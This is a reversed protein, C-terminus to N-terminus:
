YCSEVGVGVDSDLLGGVWSFGDMCCVFVCYLM